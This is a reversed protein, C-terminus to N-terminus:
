DILRAKFSHELVKGVPVEITDGARLKPSLWGTEEHWAQVQVKVGAPVNRIEFYGEYDTIVAYPHDFARVWSRMWPHLANRVTMPFRSPPIEVACQTGAPLIRSFGIDQDSGNVQVNHHVTNSVVFKFVQGSVVTKGDADRGKPFLVVQHPRFNFDAAEMVVEKRWGGKTPDLDDKDMPFYTGPPPMLFVMVNALGGTPSIKWTLQEIRGDKPLYQRPISNLATRLGAEIDSLDPRRGDWVVRGKLTGRGPAKLPELDPPAAKGATAALAVCVAGALGVVARRDAFLRATM